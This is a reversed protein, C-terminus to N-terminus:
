EILSELFSHPRTEKKNMKYQIRAEKTHAMIFSINILQGTHKILFICPKLCSSCWETWRTLWPAYLFQLFDLFPMFFPGCLDLLGLSGLTDWSELECSSFPLSVHWKQLLHFVILFIAM